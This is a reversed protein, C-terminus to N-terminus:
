EKGNFGDRTLEELKTLARVAEIFTREVASVTPRRERWMVWLGAASIEVMLRNEGM